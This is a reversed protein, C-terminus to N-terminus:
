EDKVVNFLVNKFGKEKNNKKEGDNDYVDPNGRLFKWRRWCTNDTRNGFEKAIRSWKNGFLANLELLKIDEEKSWEVEELAPDLINCWRERCQIDTRGPLHNAIKSWNKKLYIKSLAVGLTLDEIFTWKDRKIKPNIGKMWRHFCQSNNRGDLCYSIQQWNKPGYYLIAKRLITDENKTWKKYKYFSSTELYRIYCLLPTFIRENQSENKKPNQYKKTPEKKLFKNMEESIIFWNIPSTTDESLLLINKLTKDEQRTFNFRNINKKPLISEENKGKKCSSLVKELLNYYIHIKKPTYFYIHDLPIYSSYKIHKKPKSKSLRKVKELLKEIQNLRNEAKRYNELCKSQLHSNLTKAKKLNELISQIKIKLLQINQKKEIQNNEYSNYIENNSEFIDEFPFNFM